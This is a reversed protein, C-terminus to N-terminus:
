RSDLSQQDNQNPAQLTGLRNGSRRHCNPSGLAVRLKRNEDPKSLTELPPFITPPHLPPRYAHLTCVLSGHRHVTEDPRELSDALRRLSARISQRTPEDATAAFAKIQTLASDVM